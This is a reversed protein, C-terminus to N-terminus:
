PTPPERPADPLWWRALDLEIAEFPPVRVRADTAHAVLFTWRDGDRAFVELTRALPDVIWMHAVEAAAYIRPKSTRDHRATMPSVTECVWDPALTMFPVDPITPLRSRRWGAIDPVVVDDRFHFEIERLFWWDRPSGPYPDFGNGIDVLIHGTAFTHPIPPRRSVVLEGELIEGVVHEPLAEIDAYTARRRTTVM